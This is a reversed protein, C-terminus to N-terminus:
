RSNTGEDRGLRDSLPPEPHGLMLLRNELEAIRARLRPVDMVAVKAAMEDLTRAGVVRGSCRGGDWRRAGYGSGRLGDSLRWGPHESEWRGRDTGYTETM